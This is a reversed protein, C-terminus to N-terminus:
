MAKEMCRDFKKCDSEKNCKKIQDEKKKCEKMFEDKEKDFRELVKAPAGAKKMCDKWKALGKECPSKCAGLAVFAFLVVFLTAVIKKM